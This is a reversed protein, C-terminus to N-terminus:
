SSYVDWWHWCVRGLARLSLPQCCRLHSISAFKPHIKTNTQPMVLCFTVFALIFLAIQNFLAKHSETQDIFADFAMLTERYQHTQVSQQKNQVLFQFAWHGPFHIKYMKGYWLVKRIRLSIIIVLTILYVWCFYVFYSLVSCSSAPGVYNYLSNLNHYKSYLFRKPIYQQCWNNAFKIKNSIHKTEAGNEWTGFWGCGM